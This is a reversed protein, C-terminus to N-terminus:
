TFLYWRKSQMQYRRCYILNHLLCIIQLINVCIARTQFLCYTWEAMRLLVDTLKFCIMLLWVSLHLPLINNRLKLCYYIYRILVISFYSFLIFYTSLLMYWNRFKISMFKLETCTSREFYSLFKSFRAHLLVYTAVTTKKEHPQICLLVHLITWCNALPKVKLNRQVFFSPDNKFVFICRIKLFM